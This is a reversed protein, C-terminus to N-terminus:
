RGDATPAASNLAEDKLGGRAADGHVILGILKSAGMLKVANLRNQIDGVNAGASLVEVIYEPELDIEYFALGGDVGADSDDAIPAM